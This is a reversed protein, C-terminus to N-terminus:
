SITKWIMIKNDEESSYGYNLLRIIKNETYLKIRVYNASITTTKWIINPRRGYKHISQAWTDSLSFKDQIQYLEAGAQKEINNPVGAVLPM